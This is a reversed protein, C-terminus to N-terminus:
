GYLLYMYNILIVWYKFAYNCQLVSVKFYLTVELGLIKKWFAVWEFLSKFVNKRRDRIETNFYIKIYKLPCFIFVIWSSLQGSIRKKLSFSKLYNPLKKDSLFVSWQKNKKNSFFTYFTHWMMIVLWYKSVFCSIIDYCLTMTWTSFTM